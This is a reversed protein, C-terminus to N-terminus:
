RKGRVRQVLQQYSSRQIIKDFQARYNEVLSVDGIVVDWARWGAVRRIMRYDVPVETGQKTVIKTKVTALNGATTDGLLAVKEGNYREVKAVYVRELLDRFAQVFEKREVATRAEWHGALSRRAMEEFDFMKEAARHLAQLREQAREPQKLAPSDVLKLVRDMSGFLQDAPQGAWAPPALLAVLWLATAAVVTRRVTM